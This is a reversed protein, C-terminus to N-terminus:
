KDLIGLSQLYVETVAISSHNLLKKLAYIDKHKTYYTVAFYHRFAHYSYMHAIKGTKYLKKLTYNLRMKATDINVGKFPADMNLGAAEIAKIARKDLKIGSITKGKSYGEYLGKTNIALTPLAGLRLGNYACIAIMATDLTHDSTSLYQLITNVETKTPVAKTNKNKRNPLEKTGRFPNLLQRESRREMYTFFASVGAVMVRVTSASNTEGRNNKSGRLYTIFDDAQACKISLPQISNADAWLKFIDLARKYTIRTHESRYRGSNLFNSTETDWDFSAIDWAKIVSDVLKKEMAKEVVRTKLDALRSDDMPKEVLRSDDLLLLFTDDVIDMALAGIVKNIADINRAGYRVIETSM